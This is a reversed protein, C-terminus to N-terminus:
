GDLAHSSASATALRTSITMAENQTSLSWTPRPPGYRFKIQIFTLTLTGNPYVQVRKSASASRVRFRSQQVKLMWGTGRGRTPPLPGNRREPSAQGSSQGLPNLVPMVMGKSSALDYEAKRQTCIASSTLSEDRRYGSGWQAM